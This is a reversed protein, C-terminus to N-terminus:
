LPQWERTPRPALPSEDPLLLVPPSDKRLGVPSRLVTNEGDIWYIYEGDTVARAPYAVLAYNDDWGDIAVLYPDEFFVYGQYIVAKEAADGSAVATGAGPAAFADAHKRSILALRATPGSSEPPPTGYFLNRFNDCYAGDRSTNGPIKALERFRFTVQATGYNRLCLVPTPEVPHPRSRRAIFATSLPFGIYIVVTTGVVVFLFARFSRWLGSSNPQLQTDPVPHEERGNDHRPTPQHYTM